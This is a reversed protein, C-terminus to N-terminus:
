QPWEVTPKIHTMDPLGLRAQGAQTGYVVDCADSRFVFYFLSAPPGAWQAVADTAIKGVLENLQEAQLKALETQYLAEAAKVTAAASATYFGAHESHPIGIYKLMLLSEQASSALQSDIYHAIGATTAGPVIAEALTELADVTPAELMRYPLKAGYAEGSLLLSTKGGVLASILLGGSRGLFDRRSQGM